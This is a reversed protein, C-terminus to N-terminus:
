APRAEARAARIAAGALMLAAVGLVVIGWGPDVWPSRSGSLAVVAERLSSSQYVGAVLAALVPMFTMAIAAATIPVRLPQLRPLYAAAVATGLVDIKLLTMLPVAQWTSLGLLAEDAGRFHLALGTADRPGDM